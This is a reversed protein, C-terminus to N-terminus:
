APNAQGPGEAQRWLRLTDPGYDLTEDLRYHAGDVLAARAQRDLAPVGPRGLPKEATILAVEDALGLAILRGAVQPGGESFVRM